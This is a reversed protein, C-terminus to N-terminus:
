KKDIEIMYKTSKAKFAAQKRQLDARRFVANGLM